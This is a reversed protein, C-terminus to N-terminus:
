QLGAKRARKAGNADGVAFGALTGLLTGGAVYEGESILFLGGAGAIIMATLKIVSTGVEIGSEGM